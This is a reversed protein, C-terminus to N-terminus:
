RRLRAGRGVAAALSEPDLGSELLEGGPGSPFRQVFALLVDEPTLTPRGPLLRRRRAEALGVAEAYCDRLDPSFEPTALSGSRLAEYMQRWYFVPERTLGCGRAMFDALGAPAHWYRRIQDACALCVGAAFHRPEVAAAADRAALMGAFGFAWIFPSRWKHPIGLVSKPVIRARPFGRTQRGAGGGTARCDLGLRDLLRM